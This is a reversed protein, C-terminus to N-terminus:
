GARVGGRTSEGATRWGALSGPAGGASAGDTLYPREYGDFCAVCLCRGDADFWAVRESGCVDCGRNV